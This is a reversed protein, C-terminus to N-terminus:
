ISACTCRPPARHAGRGAWALSCGWAWRRRLRTWWCRSTACTARMGDLEGRDFLAAVQRSLRTFDGSPAFAVADRLPAHALATVAQQLEERSVQGILTAKPARAGAPPFFGPFLRRLRRRRPPKALTLRLADQLLRRNDRGVHQPVALADPTEAPSVAVDASRLAQVFRSFTLHM